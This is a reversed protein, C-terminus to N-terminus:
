RGATTSCDPAAAEHFAAASADPRAAGDLMNSGLCSSAAILSLIVAERAIRVLSRM